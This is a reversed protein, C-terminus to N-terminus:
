SPQQPDRAVLSAMVMDLHNCIAQKDEAFQGELALTAVISLGLILERSPKAELGVVDEGAICARVLRLATLFGDYEASTPAYEPM